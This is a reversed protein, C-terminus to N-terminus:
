ASWQQVQYARMSRPSQPRDRSCTVDHPSTQQLLTRSFKGLADHGCTLMHGEILSHRLTRTYSYVRIETDKTNEVIIHECPTTVDDFRDNSLLVDMRNHLWAQEAADLSM